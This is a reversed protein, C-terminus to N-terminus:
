PAKLGLSTVAVEDVQRAGRPGTVLGFHNWWDFHTWAIGNSEFLERVDTLWAQRSTAPAVDRLVGFESCWIPVGHRNSWTVAKGVIEALKERDWSQRGYWQVHELAEPSTSSLIPQVAAPSSPYPLDHLQRWMPWGWTAGQHTFNHPDYFHFAYVVRPMPLPDLLLLDDIDSFHAGAVVVV